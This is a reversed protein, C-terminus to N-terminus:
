LAAWSREWSCTRGEILNSCFGLSWMVNICCWRVNLRHQIFTMHGSPLNNDLTYFYTHALAHFQRCYQMGKRQQRGLFAKSGQSGVSHGAFIRDSQTSRLKWQTCMCEQLFHQAAFDSFHNYPRNSMLHGCMFNSSFVAYMHVYNLRLGASGPLVRSKCVTYIWILQSRLLWSIQIQM